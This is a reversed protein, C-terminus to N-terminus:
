IKIRDVLSIKSLGILISNELSGKKDPVHNFTDAVGPCDKVVKKVIGEVRATKVLLRNLWVRLGNEDNLRFVFGRYSDAEEQGGNNSTKMRRQIEMIYGVGRETVVRVLLAGRPQKSEPNLYPWNQVAGRLKESDKFPPFAVMNPEAGMAFGEASIPVVSIIGSGRSSALKILAKWIGSLTSDSALRQPASISAPATGPKKGHAEGGSYKEPPEDSEITRKERVSTNSRVLSIVQRKKGLIHFEPDHIELAGQGSGPEETHILYISKGSAPPKPKLNPWTTGDKLKKLPGTLNTNQRDLYIEAGGPDSCGIVQLALFRRQDQDLWIGRVQMQAIGTFWPGVQLFVPANGQIGQQGEGQPSVARVRKKTVPDHRLHALFVADGNVCNKEVTVQWTDPPAEEVDPVILSDKANEFSQTLLTRKVYQSRGYLRFFLELCPVILGRSDTTLHFQVLRTPPHLLKDSLSYATRPVLYDWSTGNATDWPGAFCWAGDSFDLQFVEEELPIEGVRKQNQWITGLRVQGLHTIGIDHYQFKGYSGDPLIPRFFVQVTPESPAPPNRKLVGYWWAVLRTSDDQPLGEIILPNKASSEKM